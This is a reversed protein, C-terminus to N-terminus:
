AELFVDIVSMEEGFFYKSKRHAKEKKCLAELRAKDFPEIEQLRWLVSDVQNAYAAGLSEYRLLEPRRQEVLRALCRAVNVQGTIEHGSGYRLSICAAEDRRWILVLRLEPLSTDVPASTLSESFSRLEPSSAANSSLSSHRHVSARVAFIKRLLDLLPKVFYPTRSPDCFLVVDEAIPDTSATRQNGTLLSEDSFTEGEPQRSGAASVECRGVFDPNTIKSLLAAFTSHDFAIRCPYCRLVCVSM